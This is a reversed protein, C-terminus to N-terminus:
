LPHDTDPHSILISVSPFRIFSISREASWHQLMVSQSAQLAVDFDTTSGTGERLLIDLLQDPTSRFDNNLVTKSTKDFLVISYADRRGAGPHRDATAAASNTPWFSHLASYVSDLGRRSGFRQRATITAHHRATWFSYLASYVAGLRNNAHLRIREAAPGDALPVHDFSSMSASRFRLCSVCYGVVSTVLGTLSSYGLSIRYTLVTLPSGCAPQAYVHFSQQSLIPDRCEFLHGDNSIYGRHGNIRDHLRRPPHFMPLTCYSPRGSGSVTASHEPGTSQLKLWLVLLCIYTVMGPCM